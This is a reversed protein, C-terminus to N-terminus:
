QALHQQMWTATEDRLPPEPPQQYDVALDYGARDYLDHVIQNLPLQPETEGKQLPVPINPVPEPIDFLYADARPRHHSRSVIIRYDSQRSRQQIRMPLPQGARLLDIEVFHTDSALVRLRKREYQTRGEGKLKNSLSLLEIVTIVMGTSVDRIELYRETVEEPIVSGLKDVCATAEQLMVYVRQEVTIRHPRIQQGLADAIAVILRTHVDEWLGSRELYPNMGPFPTPM